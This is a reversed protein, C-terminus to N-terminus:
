STPLTVKLKEAVKVLQGWTGDDLAIGERRRRAAENRESMETDRKALVRWKEELDRIQRQLEDM